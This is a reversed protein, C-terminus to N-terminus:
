SVLDGDSVSALHEGAPHLPLEFWVTTGDMNREASWASALADVLSLGRGAIAEPGLATMEPAPGESGRDQVMVMVYDGDQRASITSATGSHIVANTVLESACLEATDVVDDDAHWQELTGRVFRRALSAASADAPLERSLTLQVPAATLALLTVDDDAQGPTMLDGLRACLERPNRRRPALRAVADRLVEIGDFLERRRNEVLGDSYFLLSAREELRVTTSTWPGAGLGLAPGPATDLVQPQGEASVMLPPPHGAIAVRVSSRDPAVLGYAVTVIQDAVPLASVLRDLRDLVVGPEPDLLAYARTASRVESMVVAAPLGRGMVDGLVAVVSGDALPLVDYWDGGVEAHPAEPRYHAGFTLGPLDPLSHPMLSRQLQASTSQEVRYALARRLAQGVQAAFADLFGRQDPAFEQEVGYAVLLAGVCSRDVTMPVSVVSRNGLRRQREAIEPFTRDLEEPTRLYVPLLTRVTRALPVDALGDIRCWRIALPGLADDDTSVFDLERGGGHSVAAGARTVHEVRLLETLAARAVDDVTVADGLAVSLRALHQMRQPM